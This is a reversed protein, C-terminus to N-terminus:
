MLKNNKKVKIIYNEKAIGANIYHIITLSL